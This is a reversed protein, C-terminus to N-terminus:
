SRCMYLCLLLILRVHHLVKSNGGKLKEYFHQIIDQVDGQRVWIQGRKNLVHVVSDQLRDDWKSTVQVDKEKSMLIRRAKKQLASLDKYPVTLLDENEYVLVAHLDDDLASEARGADKPCCYHSQTRIYFVDGLSQICSYRLSNTVLRCTM